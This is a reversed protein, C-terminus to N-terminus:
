KIGKKLPYCTIILYDNDVKKCVIKLPLKETETKHVFELRKEDVVIKEGHEIVERIESESINYLKRRRKAHRTYKIM